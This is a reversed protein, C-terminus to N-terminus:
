EVESYLPKSRENRTVTLEPVGKPSTQSLHGSLGQLRVDVLICPLFHSQATFQPISFMHLFSPSSVLLFIICIPLHFCLSPYTRVFIIIISIQSYVKQHHIVTSLCTSSPYNHIFMNIISLQPYVHQHYIVTSSCKSSPYSHIIFNHHHIVTFISSPYSHIFMKIICIYQSFQPLNPVCSIIFMSLCNVVLICHCLNVSNIYITSLLYLCQCVIFLNHVSISSGQISQNYQVSVHM